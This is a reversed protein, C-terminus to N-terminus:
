LVVHFAQTSLECTEAAAIGEDTEDGGSIGVLLVVLLFLSFLTVLGPARTQSGPSPISDSPLHYLTPRFLLSESTRSQIEDDRIGSGM